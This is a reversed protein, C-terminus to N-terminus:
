RYSRTAPHQPTPPTLTADTHRRCYIERATDRRHNLPGEDRDDAGYHTRYGRENQREGVVRQVGQPYEQGVHRDLLDLAVEDGREHHLPRDREVRHYHYRRHGHGARGEADQASKQRDGGGDHGADEDFPEPEAAQLFLYLYQRILRARERPRGM